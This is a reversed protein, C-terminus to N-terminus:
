HQLVVVEGHAEFQELFVVTVDELVEALLLPVREALHHDVHHSDRQHRVKQTRAFGASAAAKSIPFLEESQPFGASKGRKKGSDAQSTPFSACLGLAPVTCRLQSVM